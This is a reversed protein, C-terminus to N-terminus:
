GNGDNVADSGDSVDADSGDNIDADEMVLM